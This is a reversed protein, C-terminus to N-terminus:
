VGPRRHACPQRQDRHADLGPAHLSRRGGRRFHRESVLLAHRQRPGSVVRGTPRNGGASQLHRLPTRVQHGALRELSQLVLRHHHDQGEPQTSGVPVYGYMWNTALYGQLWADPATTWRSIRDSTTFIQPRNKKPDNPDINGNDVMNGVRVFGSNPWRALTQLVGNVSLNVMPQEQISGFRHHGAGVPQMAPSEGASGEAPPGARVQGDGGHVGDAAQQRFDGGHGAHGCPHELACRGGLRQRCKDAQDHEALPYRGAALEIATGGAVAGAARNAALAQNVTAFPQARTGPNTDNGDPAVYLVRGPTPAATVRVRSAEPDRGPLGQALRDCETKCEAGEMQHIRPYEKIAAIAGFIASAKAFDGAAQFSRAYRLHAISRWQATLRLDTFVNSLAGRVQAWDGAKWAADAAKMHSTAMAVHDITASVNIVGTGSFYSDNKNTAPSKSSGYSGEAQVAGGLTLQTVYSQGTFDLALKAGSSINLPGEGLAAQNALALVGSKVSTAGSHTNRGTLTLTGKGDKILTGAGSIIQTASQAHDDSRDFTLTAGSAITVPGSGLTGATGGDGIQLTGGNVTTTGSYTNAATLTLTGPGSKTLGATGAVAASITVTKTGGLANVTITPTTGALTLINGALTWGAPSATDTDGFVLNGITRASDLHVTTDATINLTNFDATVSSGSGVQNVLWNGATGWPGGAPNSWTAASAIADVDAVTTGILLNDFSQNINADFSSGMIRISDVGDLDRGTATAMPAASVDVPSGTPGVWLEVTSTEGAGLTIKAVGTKMGGHNPETTASAGNM